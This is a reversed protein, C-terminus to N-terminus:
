PRPKLQSRLHGARAAGHPAPLHEVDVAVPQPRQRARRRVLEHLGHALRTGALATACSATSRRPRRRACSSRARAGHERARAAGRDRPEGRGRDHLHGLRHRRQHETRLAPVHEPLRQRDHRPLGEPVDGWTEELTRGGRGTIEMPAVFAHSAFGTGFVIVDAERLTGDATEVGDSTIRGIPDTVLDVNPKTLTPYWHDTLMIRKCGIEDKPTVKERLVPDDIAKEIQKRGAAAFPAIMWRQSTMAAAGIDMFAFTAMRDLWQM